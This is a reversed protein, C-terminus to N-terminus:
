VQPVGVHELRRGDKVAVVVVLHEPALEVQHDGCEAGDLHGLGVRDDVVLARRESGVGVHPGDDRVKGLNHFIYAARGVNRANM